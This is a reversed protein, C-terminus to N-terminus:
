FSKKTKMKKRIQTPQSSEQMSLYMENCLPLFLQSKVFKSNKERMLETIKTNVTDINKENCMERMNAWCQDVIYILDKYIDVWTTVCHLVKELGSFSTSQLTISKQQFM